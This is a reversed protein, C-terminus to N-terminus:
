IRVNLVNLCLRIHNNHYLYFYLVLEVVVVVVVLIAVNQNFAEILKYNIVFVYVVIFFICKFSSVLKTPM